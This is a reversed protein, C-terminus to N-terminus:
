GPSTAARHPRALSLVTLLGISAVAVGAMTFPRRWRSAPVFSATARALDQKNSVETGGRTDTWVALAQSRESLLALRSGLDALGRESGFGVRSDFRRDSLRVRPGFSKGHDVSSQLSVENHVNADDARRDYYVVDVRGGPAVVVKPLYQTTRDRPTTDNVRVASTWRRGGEKSTWLWVDPDGLRGDHFGVYLRGDRPDVALSPAPPLFVVFRETPVLAEDVVTEQWTAGRDLSRALVLVFTGSYPEGGRGEHAGHYDLSDQGLDLYAVYLEGGPGVAPSPAVVRPRSGPSLRVPAHWSGGGDDSRAVAIPNGPEPFALTATDAAQLWSLYLRGPTRPDATLRVQFALPGVARAPLSLTRGGDNSSELWVASPVNGLGKLTVFALHMTGDPGFAVDPAYCRPPMEEGAPFPIPTESWTAGGDASVHLACSFRPLDIRNAVVLNDPRLPNAVLTPSNHASLDLPDTAGANVPLSVGTVSTSAGALSLGAVFAGSGLSILAMGM